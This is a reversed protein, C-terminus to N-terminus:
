ATVKEHAINIRLWRNSSFRLAVIIFSLFAYIPAIVQYPIAATSAFHAVWVYTPIVAFLWTTLTNTWMIFRTDGGATLVGWIINSLGNFAFYIWLGKFALSVQQLLVQDIFQTQNMLRLITSEPAYWLVLWLCGLIIILIIGASKVIKEVANLHGQGIANSVMATVGKSLGEVTCMFMLILSHCLTQVTVYDESVTALYAVIAAWGAIELMRSVATPLGIRICMMMQKLDFVFQRTFYQKHNETSLFACFLFLVQVFLAASTAVAAGATGMAPISGEYGFVLLLNLVANIINAIVASIVLPATNGTGVFFSVLGGLVPVLFGFMMNIKFYPMGLAQFRDAILYDGGWFAVPIFIVNLMLAFILMQWVPSAVKNWQRAGNFQGVFIEAITTISLGAIQFVNCVLITSSAANMALIDYKGLVFRGLFLMMNGSLAALMLPFSIRLASAVNFLKFKTSAM